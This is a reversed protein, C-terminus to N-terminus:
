EVVVVVVIVLVAIKWFTKMEEESANLSNLSESPVLTIPTFYKAVYGEGHLFALCREKKREIPIDNPNNQEDETLYLKFRAAYDSDHFFLEFESRAGHENRKKIRELNEDISLWGRPILWAPLKKNVNYFHYLAFMEKHSNMEKPDIEYALLESSDLSPEAQNEWLFSPPEVGAEIADRIAILNNIANNILTRKYHRGRTSHSRESTLNDIVKTLMARVGISVNDLDVDDRGALSRVEVNNPDSELVRRLTSVDDDYLEKIQSSSFICYVTGGRGGGGGDNLLDLAYIMACFVLCPGIGTGYTGSSGFNVKNRNISRRFLCKNGAIQPKTINQARLVNPYMELMTQVHDQVEEEEAEGSSDNEDAEVESSASATSSVVSEEEQCDCCDECSTCTNCLHDACVQNNCDDSSCEGLKYSIDQCIDCDVKSPLPEASGTQYSLIAFICINSKSIPPLTHM